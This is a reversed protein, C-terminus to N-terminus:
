GRFRLSMWFVIEKSLTRSVLRAGGARIHAVLVARDQMASHLALRKGPSIGADAMVKTRLSPCVEALQNREDVSSRRGAWSLAVEGGALM